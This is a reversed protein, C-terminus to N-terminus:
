SPETGAGSRLEGRPGLRFYQIVFADQGSEPNRPHGLSSDEPVLQHTAGRGEHMGSRQEGGSGAGRGQQGGLRSWRGGQGTKQPKSRSGGPLGTREGSDAEASFSGPESRGGAATERGSWRLSWMRKRGATAEIARDALSALVKRAGRFLASIGPRNLSANLLTTRSRPM